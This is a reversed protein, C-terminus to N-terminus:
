RRVMIYQLKSHHALILGKEGLNSQDSYGLLLFLVLCMEGRKGKSIDYIEIAKFIGVGLYSINQCAALVYVCVSYRKGTFVCKTKM